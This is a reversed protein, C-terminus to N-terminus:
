QDYNAPNLLFYISNIQPLQNIFSVIIEANISGSIMSFIIEDKHDTMYDVCPDLDNFVQLYDVVSRLKLM